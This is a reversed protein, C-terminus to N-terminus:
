FGHAQPLYPGVLGSVERGPQFVMQLQQPSLQIECQFRYRRLDSQGSGSSDVDNRFLDAGLGFHHNLVLQLYGVIGM